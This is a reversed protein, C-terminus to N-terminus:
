SVSRMRRGPHRFVKTDSVVGLIPIDLLREIDATSRLFPDFAHRLLALVCGIFTGLVLGVFALKFRPPGQKEFPLTADQIRRLNSFEVQDLRSILNTRESAKAFSQYQAHASSTQGELLHYQPECLMLGNLRERVSGLRKGAERIMVSKSAIELRLTDLEAEFRHQRSDVIVQGSARQDLFEPQGELAEKAREIRQELLRQATEREATTGTSRVRVEELSDQLELLRQQCLAWRPNVAASNPIGKVAAAEEAILGELIASRGNMEALSATDVAIQKELEQLLLLLQGREADFDYIDNSVRFENLEREARQVAEMSAAQRAAVFELTANISYVERHREEAAALFAEVTERALAPDHAEYSVSIVSSPVENRVEIKKALGRAALEICETCGDLKHGLTSSQTASTMGSWCSQIWHFLRAWLQANKEELARPDYRALLRQPGVASAVRKFVAPDTLLQLENGVVDRPPAYSSQGSDAIVAEPSVEERAGYRVMLKGTSRFSNPEAIGLLVGAAAGLVATWGVLRRWRVLPLLIADSGDPRSDGDWDDVYDQTSEM